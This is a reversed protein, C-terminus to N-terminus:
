IRGTAEESTDVRVWGGQSNEMFCLHSEKFVESWIQWGGGGKISMVGPEEQETEAWVGRM